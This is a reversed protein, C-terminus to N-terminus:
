VPTLIAEDPDSVLARDTAQFRLRNGSTAGPSLQPTIDRGHTEASEQSDEPELAPAQQSAKLGPKRDQLRKEMEAWPVDSPILVEYMARKVYEFTVQSAGDEDALLKAERVIDGVASLDRKSFAEYAMVQKITAKDAGPLLKRAVAEVDHPTNKAPLRVYRKCRRKFQRYNWGVQGAAREMCKLFQPTTILALPLPPNCLATDIWDLMEPGGSQRLNQNFLHHAEDVALMLRSSQLVEKVSTQMELATRTNGHGLGLARALERVHATKSSTRDLSAFRAVGLHCNCWARVAETKGRGDLGDIVIMTNSRLADDLQKWIQQGIATLCVDAKVREEYRRKYEVLAGIIDRFYVVDAQECPGARMERIDDEAPDRGRKAVESENLEILIRPNICMEVLFDPLRAKAEALCEEYLDQRPVPPGYNRPASVPCDDWTPEVLERIDLERELLSDTCDCGDRIQARIVFAERGTYHQGKRMRAEHMTPTGVRNPFMKLLEGALTNCGGQLISLGQIFWLLERKAASVLLSCRKAVAMGNIGRLQALESSCMFRDQSLPGTTDARHTSM